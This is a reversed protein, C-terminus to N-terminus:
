RCPLRQRTQPLRDAGPDAGARHLQPRQSLYTTQFPFFSAARMVIPGLVEDRIYFYYHTFRSRQHPLIRYNAGKTPYKPVTVRVTTAQEMSKFVFYVGYAEAKAMRNNGPCSMINRHEKRV